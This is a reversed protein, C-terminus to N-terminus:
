PKEALVWLFSVEGEPENMSVVEDLVLTFGADALLQRNTAADHSSFFM